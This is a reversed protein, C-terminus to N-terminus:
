EEDDDDWGLEEIRRRALSLWDREVIEGVRQKLAEFTMEPPVYSNVLVDAGCPREVSL